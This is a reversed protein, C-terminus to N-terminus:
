YLKWTKVTENSSLRLLKIRNFIPKDITVYKNSKIAALRESSVVRGSIDYWELTVNNLRHRSRIQTGNRTTELVIKHEVIGTTQVIIENSLTPCNGLLFTGVQYMGSQAYIHTQQDEGSLAVGNLYWQYDAQINSELIGNNESIVPADNYCESDITGLNPDTVLATQFDDWADCDDKLFYDFWPHCVAYSSQRQEEAPLSGPIIEGLTCTITNSAFYCHSGDTIPVFYKCNSGLANYIPIHHDNPPTVGDSTGSLIMVPATVNSAATVASPDTEAPALGVICDVDAFSSAGIFTAGGGMSHGMM